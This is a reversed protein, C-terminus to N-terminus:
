APPLALEELEPLPVLVRARATRRRLKGLVEARYNWSLLLAAVDEEPQIATWPRVPIACGPVRTGQKLPTDDVVFRLDGGDFGCYNLLEVGRAPAGLGVLPGHQAALRRVAARLGDRLREARAAV